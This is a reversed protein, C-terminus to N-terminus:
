HLLTQFSIFLVTNIHKIGNWDNTERRMKAIAKGQGSNCMEHSKKCLEIISQTKRDSGINNGRIAGWADLNQM